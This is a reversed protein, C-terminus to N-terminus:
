SCYRGRSDRVRGLGFSVSDIFVEPYEYDQVADFEEQSVQLLREYLEATAVSGMGGIIGIKPLESM